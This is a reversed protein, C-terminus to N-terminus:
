TGLMAHVVTMAVRFTIETAAARVMAAAIVMAVAAGSYRPVRIPM